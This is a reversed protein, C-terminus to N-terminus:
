FRVKEFDILLSKSPCSITRFFKEIKECYKLFSGPYKKLAAKFFFNLFSKIRIQFYFIFDFFFLFINIFFYLVHFSIFPHFYLLVTIKNYRKFDYMSSKESQLIMSEFDKRYSKSHDDSKISVNGKKIRLIVTKLFIHTIWM